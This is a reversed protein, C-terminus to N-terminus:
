GGILHILYNWLGDALGGIGYGGHIGAYEVAYIIVPIWSFRLLTARSGIAHKKLLLVPIVAGLLLSAITAGTYSVVKSMIKKERVEVQENKRESTRVLSLRKLAWRAFRNPQEAMCIRIIWLDAVVSFVFAAITGYLKNWASIAWFIPGFTLDDM